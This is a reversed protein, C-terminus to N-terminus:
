VRVIAGASLLRMPWLYSDKRSMRDKKEPCEVWEYQMYTCQASLPTYRSGGVRSGPWCTSAGTPMTAHASGKYHRDRWAQEDLTGVVDHLPGVHGLDTVEGSEL